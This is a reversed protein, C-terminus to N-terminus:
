EGTARYTRLTNNVIQEPTQADELGPYTIEAREGWGWPVAFTSSTGATYLKLTRIGLLLELINQSVEVDTVKHYHVSRRRRVLLGGMFVVRQNTVAYRYTRRLAWCYALGGLFCLPGLILLAPLALTFPNMDARPATMVLFMGGFFGFAWFVIFAFIITFPLAKTFFWVGFVAASPRGEWLVQEGQNLAISAM